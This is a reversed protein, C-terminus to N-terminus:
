AHEACWQTHLRGVLTRRGDDAGRLQRAARLERVGASCRGFPPGRMCSRQLRARASVEIRANSTALSHTKENSYNHVAFRYVTHPEVEVTVTEPGHGDTVDVDLPMGMVWEGKRPYYTHAKKGDERM